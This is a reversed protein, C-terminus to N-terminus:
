GGLSQKLLYLPWMSILLAVTGLFWALRLNSKKQKQEDNMM